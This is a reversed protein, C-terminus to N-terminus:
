TEEINELNRRGLRGEPLPFLLLIGNQPRIIRYLLARSSIIGSRYLEGTRNNRVFSAMSHQAQHISSSM